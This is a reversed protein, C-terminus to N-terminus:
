VVCGYQYDITLSENRKKAPSVYLRLTKSCRIYHQNMPKKVNHNSLKNADPTIYFVM